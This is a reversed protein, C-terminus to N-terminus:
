PLLRKNFKRLKMTAKIKPSRSESRNLLLLQGIWPGYTHKTFLQVHNNQNYNEKLKFSKRSHITLTLLIKHELKNLARVNKTQAQHSSVFDTVCIGHGTVLKSFFMESFKFTVYELYNTSFFYITIQKKACMCVETTNAYFLKKM